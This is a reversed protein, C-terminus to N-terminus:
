RESICTPLVLSSGLYMLDGLVRAFDYVARFFVRERAAGARQARPVRGVHGQFLARRTKSVVEHTPLALGPRSGEIHGHVM